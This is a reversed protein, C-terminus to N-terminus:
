RTARAKTTEEHHSTAPAHGFDAPLSIGQIEALIHMLALHHITHTQLFTLERAITSQVLLPAMSPDTLASVTVPETPTLSLITLANIIRTLSATAARPAQEIVPDRSRCDYSLLGHPLDRLFSDYHDLVHRTHRGISAKNHGFRWTYQAETVIHLLHSLRMLAM